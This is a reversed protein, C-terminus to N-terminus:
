KAFGMPLLLVPIIENAGSAAELAIGMVYSGNVADSAAGADSTNVSAATATIARGTTDTTVRDYKAVAAGAIVKAVDRHQVSCVEGSAPQDQLVGLSVEGAVTCVVVSGSSNKVFRHRGANGSSYDAGAVAPFVPGTLSYSM